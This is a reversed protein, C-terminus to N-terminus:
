ASSCTECCLLHQQQPVSVQSWEDVTVGSLGAMVSWLKGMRLVKTCEARQMLVRLPVM